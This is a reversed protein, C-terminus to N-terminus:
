QARRMAFVGHYESMAMTLGTVQSYSLSRVAELTLAVTLQICPPIKRAIHGDFIRFPRYHAAREVTLGTFCRDPIVKSVAFQVV